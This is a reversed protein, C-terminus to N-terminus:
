RFYLVYLRFRFRFSPPPRRGRGVHASPREPKSMPRALGPRASSPGESDSVPRMERTEHTECTEHTERTEHTKRTEHTEHTEYPTVHRM